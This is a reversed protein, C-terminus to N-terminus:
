RQALSEKAKNVQASQAANFLETKQIELREKARIITEEVERGEDKWYRQSLQGQGQQFNELREIASETRKVEDLAKSYTMKGSGVYTIMDDIAKLGDNISTEAQQQTLPKKQSIIGRVVDNFLASNFALIGLSEKIAAKAQPNIVKNGIEDINEKSETKREGLEGKLIPRSGIEEVNSQAIEGPRQLPLPASVSESGENQMRNLEAQYVAQRVNADDAQKQLERIELGVRANSESIREQEAQPLNDVRVATSKDAGTPRSYVKAKSDQEQQILKNPDAQLGKNIRDQNESKRKIKTTAM